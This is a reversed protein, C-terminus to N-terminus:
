NKPDRLKASKASPPDRVIPVLHDHGKTGRSRGRSIQPRRAITREELVAILACTGTHTAYWAVKIAKTQQESRIASGGIRDEDGRFPLPVALFPSM